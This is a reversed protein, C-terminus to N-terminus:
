QGFDRRRPIVKLEPQSGGLRALRLAAERQILSELAERLLPATETLGTLERAEELLKDDLSVTTRM